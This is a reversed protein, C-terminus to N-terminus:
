SYRIERFLTLQIVNNVDVADMDEILDDFTRDTLTESYKKIGEIFMDETITHYSTEPYIKGDEIHAVRAPFHQNVGSLAFWEWQFAGSGFFHDELEQTTPKRLLPM